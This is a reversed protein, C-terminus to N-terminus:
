QTVMNRSQLLIATSVFSILMISALFIYATATAGLCESQDIRCSASLGDIWFLVGYALSAFVVVLAAPWRLGLRDVWRVVMLAIVPVILTSIM